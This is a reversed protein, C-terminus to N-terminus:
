RIVRQVHYWPLALRQQVDSECRKRKTDDSECQKIIAKAAGKEMTAGQIVCKQKIAVTCHPLYERLMRNMSLRNM